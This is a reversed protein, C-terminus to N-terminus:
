LIDLRLVSSGRYTGATTPSKILEGEIEVLPATGTVDLVEKSNKGFLLQVEGGGGVSVLGGNSLTLRLSAPSDCQIDLNKSAKAREGVRGRITMVANAITCSVPAGTPIVTANYILWDDAGWLATGTCYYSWAIPKKGKPLVVGIGVLKQTMDAAEQRSSCYKSEPAVGNFCARPAGYVCAYLYSYPTVSISVGFPNRVGQQAMVDGAGATVSTVIWGSTAQDIPVESMYMVAAPTATSLLLGIATTMTMSKVNMNLRNRERRLHHQQGLRM